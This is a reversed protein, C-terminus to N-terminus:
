FEYGASLAFGSGGRQAISAASRVTWSNDFRHSAGLAFASQDRWHGFGITLLSKGPTTAQVLNAVAMAAATGGNSDKRNDEISSEVSAMRDGIGGLQSDIAGIASGVDSYGRDNVTYSPSTIEGTSTVSSGGGIARAVSQASQYAQAGNVAQTSTANVAGAAINSLTAPGGVAVLTLSNSAIGGNPIDPTAANSYQVLGAGGSTLTELAQHTAFLQSGNVADTSSATIQGAAVNQLQREQGAAGVSVVGAPAGGAVQYNTGRITMSSVATASSTASGAGLAVSNATNVSAGSGLALGNLTSAQAGDGLAVSGAVSAISANGLAVSGRGIAQNGNGIAVAGDAAITGGTDGASINDAGLAVAGTGNAINPDGIAVAGNGIATQGSGIAVAQGGSASSNQGIAISNDSAANAGSGMAISATGSSVAAPGIAVSDTGSAISDALTSNSHFFKIGGGNAINSLSQDVATFAAGVNDYNGGQITYNPASFSGTVPDYVAGGGLYSATNTGLTAVVQNTANLQSGNVADTSTSNLAGAALNTLTQSQGPNTGSGGPAVVALQNSVGTQQVAGITGNGLNDALSAVAANTAFLQSGNVAETSTANIAGAALNSLTQEQGPTAGTGGAAVLAVRNGIGTQQIIGITGNSVGDSLDTISENTAFLQSGNVADGSTANVDGAGVNKLSVPSTAGVGGLTISSKSADDYGVSSSAIAGIANIAQNSAFLQSGNVADTSSASLRGASLNTITRETNTWGISVTGVPAAGAFNYTAGNIIASPTGVVNGVDTNSSAGLAVSNPENALAGHGLAVSDQSMAHSQYGMAISQGGEAWAGSGIAIDHILGAQGNVGAFSDAGLAISGQGYARANQLAAFSSVGSAAAANGLAIANAGSAVSSDGLATANVGSASSSHGLALTSTNTARANQGLATSNAGTARSTEGVATANTQNAVANRGFASTQAATAEAQRAIAVSNLGTSIAADGIAVGFNTAQAGSGAGVAISFAGCTAAVTGGNGMVSNVGLADLQICTGADSPSAFFFWATVGCGIGLIGRSLASTCNLLFARSHLHQQQNCISQM